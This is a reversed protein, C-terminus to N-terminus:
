SWLKEYTDVLLNATIPKAIFYLFGATLAERAVSADSYGTVAICSIDQTTPNEKIMEFLNWGNEGPLRLDIIILDYSPQTDFLFDSAEEASGAVEISHGLFKSIQVVVAQSDDDDEVLLIQKNM